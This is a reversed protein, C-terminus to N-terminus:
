YHKPPKQDIKLFIHLLFTVIIKTKVFKMVNLCFAGARLKFDRGGDATHCVTLMWSSPVIRNMRWKKAIIM